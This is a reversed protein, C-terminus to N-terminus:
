VNINNYNNNKYSNYFEYMIPIIFIIYPYENVVYNTKRILIKFLSENEDPLSPSPPPPSISPSIHIKKQRNVKRPM